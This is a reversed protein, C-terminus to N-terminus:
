ELVSTPDWAQETGKGFHSWKQVAAKMNSQIFNLVLDNTSKTYVKYIKKHIQM